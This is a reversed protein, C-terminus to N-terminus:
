RAVEGAGDPRVRVAITSGAGFRADMFDGYEEVLDRHVYAQITGAFGGGHVRAVGDRGLFAKSLEIAVALPQEASAGTPTVNQLLRWSSDGSKGVLKLYRKLKGRGLADVMDGVRQNESAFHMARLLARDGAAERIRASEKVLKGPGIGRLTEQGFLAAVARMESPISAYEPTLDEHGSGAKVIALAYGAKEFDYSVRSWRPRGPRGFDIASIGGLASAMQDMLGCPKGFHLNEAERGAIAIDAPEIENRNYLANFIQGLLVEIAASSSLGSGAPVASDIAGRFGGITGGKRAIAYAVGRILAEPSGAEDARPSLDSLDVIFPKDWGTSSLEVVPDPRPHVFALADLDVAACLVRGDNHDTHNGGLETRGPSSVFAALEATSDRLVSEALRTWRESQTQVAAEGYWRALLKRGEKTEPYKLLSDPDRM